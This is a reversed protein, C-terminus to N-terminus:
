ALDELIADAAAIGQLIEGELGLAAVHARDLRYIPHRGARLELPAPFGREPAFRLSGDDWLPRESPTARRVRNGATNLLRALVASITDEATALATEMPFTASAVLEVFRAGRTSPDLSLSVPWSASGCGSKAM